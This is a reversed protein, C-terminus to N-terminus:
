FRDRSRRRATVSGSATGRGRRCCRSRLCQHRWRHATHHIAAPLKNTRWALRRVNRLMEAAEPDQAAIWELGEMLWKVGMSFFPLGRRYALKLAQRADEVDSQSRRMKLRLQAWQIAGDPIHPFRQMLRRIWGHWDRDEAQLATAVMAYGGAAAAYPNEFKFFLMNRATEAIERAVTLSGATLFGLLVGLDEDRATASACFADAAHMQQVGIEITAERGTGVVVWPLPLSLLEVCRQRPVVAFYRAAPPVPGALAFVSSNSSLLRLRYVARESDHQYVPLDLPSNGQNLLGALTEAASTAEALATWVSGGQTDSAVLAPIPTALIKIPRGIDLQVPEEFISTAPVPAGFGRSSRSRVGGGNKKATVRKKNKKHAVPSPRAPVAAVDTARTNGVLHQWSFWERPSNRGKLVVDRTEGAKLTVSDTLMEGSPLTTEVYYTGAPLDIHTADSPKDSIPVLEKRPPGLSAGSMGSPDIPRIQAPIRPARPDESDLYKDIRLTLASM